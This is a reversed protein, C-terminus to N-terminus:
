SGDNEGGKCLWDGALVESGRTQTMQRRAERGGKM